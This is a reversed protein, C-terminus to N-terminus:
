ASKSSKCIRVFNEFINSGFETDNVEPHFQLGFRNLDENQMAQVECSESQAVAVFGPPTM